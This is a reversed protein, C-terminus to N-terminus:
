PNLEPTNKLGLKPIHQWFSIVCTGFRYYALFLLAIDDM